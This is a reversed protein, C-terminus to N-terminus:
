AAPFIQKLRWVDFASQLSAVSVKKLLWLNRGALSALAQELEPDSPNIPAIANALHETAWRIAGARGAMGMRTFAVAVALIAPGVLLPPYDLYNEGAAMIQPWAFGVLVLAVALATWSIADMRNDGKRLEAAEAIALLPDHIRDVRDQGMLRAAPIRDLKLQAAYVSEFNRFTKEQLAALDLLQPSTGSYTDPVASFSTGCSQCVRAFGSEDPKEALRNEFGPHHLTIFYLSFARLRRCVACYDAVFGVRDQESKHFRTVDISM